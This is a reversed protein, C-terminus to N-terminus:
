SGMLLHNVGFSSEEIGDMGIVSFTESREYM